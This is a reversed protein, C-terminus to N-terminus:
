RAKTFDKTLILFWDLFFAFKKCYWLQLNAMSHMSLLQLIQEETYGYMM